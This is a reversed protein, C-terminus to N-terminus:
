KKKLVYRQGPNLVIVREPNIVSAKLRDPDGNFTSMEPADVTGWHICVLAADPYVNAMKVAGEFTIHWDNDSFDFLILDPQPMELQSQLLKSDGPMWITGDPTELWYGCYEEEKWERFTYKPKTMENQWNHKAPTLTIRTNGIEFSDGIDHGTGDLGEKRMEEAVYQTAHFSGCKKLEKLTPRSFHDNDIHTILVGDIAPVQEPQIPSEILVPMDFGKLLPDIMINTGRANIHAGGNGLWYVATEDSPGFDKETMFVTQEPVAQGKENKRTM